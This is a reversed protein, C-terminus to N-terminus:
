FINKEIRWKKKNFPRNETLAYKITQENKTGTIETAEKITQCNYVKGTITDILKYKKMNGNENLIKQKLRFFKSKDKNTKNKSQLYDFMYSIEEETLSLRVKEMLLYYKDMEDKEEEYNLYPVINTYEVPNNKESRYISIHTNTMIRKAWAFFVYNTEETKEPHIFKDVNTLVKNVCTAANDEDGYNIKLAMRFLQKYLKDTIEM